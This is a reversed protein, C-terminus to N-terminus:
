PGTLTGPSGTRLVATAQGEAFLRWLVKYLKSSLIRADILDGAIPINLTEPHAETWAIQLVYAGSEQKVADVKIPLRAM